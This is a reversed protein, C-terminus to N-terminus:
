WLEPHLHGQLQEAHQGAYYWGKKGKMQRQQAQQQQHLHWQIRGTPKQFLQMWALTSLLLVQQPVATGMRQKERHVLLWNLWLQGWSLLLAQLETGM